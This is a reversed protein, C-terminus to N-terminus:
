LLLQIAVIAGILIPHLSNSMNIDSSSSSSSNSTSKSSGSHTSSTSSQTSSSYSQTSTSKSTSGSKTSGHSTTSSASSGSSKNGTNSTASRTNSTASGTNSTATGITSSATGTNSSSSSSSQTSTTGSTTQTSTSLLDGASNYYIGVPTLSSPNTGTLLSPTTGVYDSSRATFWAYRSVNPNNDLAALASQMWSVETSADPPYPCDFETLWVPLGFSSAVSIWYNLAGADFYPLNCDYIHFNQFDFHCASCNGYFWTLWQQPSMLDGGPSASPAGLKIKGLLGANSLQQEVQLWLTAAEAPSLNGQYSFNPENFAMLHKTGPPLNAVLNPTVDSGKHVMPVFEIYRGGLACNQISPIPTLGWNYYWSMRSLLNLDECGGSWAETAVGRYILKSSVTAICFFICIFTIINHM